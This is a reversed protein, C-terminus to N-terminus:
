MGLLAAGVRLHHRPEELLLPYLGGRPLPRTKEVWAEGQRVQYVLKGGHANAAVMRPQIQLLGVGFPTQLRPNCRSARYVLAGLLFPDVEAEAAAERVGDAVHAVARATAMGECLAFLAARFRTSDPPGPPSAPEAPWRGIDKLEHVGPRLGDESRRRRAPWPPSAAM